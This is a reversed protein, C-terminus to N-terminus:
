FEQELAPLLVRISTGEGVRSTVKIAGKHGQVIGLVAALGLGRGIFKTTFFPHFIRSQIDPDMGCKTDSVDLYVYTGSRLNDGLFSESLIAEIYETAETAITIIGDREDFAESGDTLSGRYGPCYLFTLPSWRHRDPRWCAVSVKLPTRKTQRIRIPNNM